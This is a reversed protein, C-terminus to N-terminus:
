AVPLAALNDQLQEPKTAGLITTTTNANRICWALALQGVSCGLKEKAYEELLDVKALTGDKNWQDLQAKLFGYGETTLRSGEPVKGGKYKGTLMGSALPSWTTTAM